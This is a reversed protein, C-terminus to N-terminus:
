CVAPVGDGAKFVAAGCENVACYRAIRDIGLHGLIAASEHARLREADHAWRGVTDLRGARVEADAATTRPLVHGVAGLELGFPSADDVRERADSVHGVASSRTAGM